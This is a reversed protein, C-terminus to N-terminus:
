PTDAWEAATMGFAEFAHDLRDTRNGYPISDARDVIIKRLLSLVLDAAPDTGELPKHQRWLDGIQKDELHM